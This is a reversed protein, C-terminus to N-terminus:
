QLLRRLKKLEKESASGPDKASLEIWKTEGPFMALEDALKKAQMAERKGLDFCIYRVPYKAIRYLQQKTYELGFTAVAGKGIKWVDLPGEVVMIKDLVYDEGYLLHKIPARSEQTSASIYRLKTNDHLARTTWSFMEGGFYVPIFLRWQLRPAIGIGRIDWTNALDKPNLGRSELYRKHPIPLTVSVNDPIITQGEQRDPYQIRNYYQAGLNQEKLFQKCESWPQKTVGVLTELIKHPGCVWCNAFAASLAIGMRYKKSGSSCFPCDVQLRGTTAHHHEGPRKFDVHYERLFDELNKM